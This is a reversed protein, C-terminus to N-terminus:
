TGLQVTVVQVEGGLRRVQKEMRVSALTPSRVRAVDNRSVVIMVVRCSEANSSTLARTMRSLLM